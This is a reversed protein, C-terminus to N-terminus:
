ALRYAVRAALYAGLAQLLLLAGGGALIIGWLLGQTIHFGLGLMGELNAPTTPDRLALWAAAACFAALLATSLLVARHLSTRYDAASAKARRGVYWGAILGVLVNFVPVGMFFGFIGISYLVCVAALVASPMAFQRWVIRRLFLINLLVGAAAGLACGVQVNAGPLLGLWWGACFFTIFLIFGFFVSGAAIDIKKM